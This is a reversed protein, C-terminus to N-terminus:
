GSCGASGRRRARGPRRRVAQLVEGGVRGDHQGCSSPSSSTMCRSTSAVAASSARQDDSSARAKSCSMPSHRPPRAAACPRQLECRGCGSSSPSWPAVDVQAVPARPVDHVLPERVRHDAGEHEPQGHGRDLVRSPRAGAEQRRRERSPTEVEAPGRRDAAALRQGVRQDAADLLVAALDDAARRDRADPGVTRPRGADPHGATLHDPGAPRDDGTTVDGLQGRHELSAIGRGVEGPRPVGPARSEAHKGHVSRELPSRPKPGAPRGLAAAPRPVASPM